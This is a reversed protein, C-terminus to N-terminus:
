YGPTTSTAPTNVIVKGIMDPHVKCHYTYTGAATFTYNFTAGSGIIGSDFLGADSTITHDIMDLNIWTIATNTIATVPSPNFAMYQIFVENLGPHVSGTTDIGMGSINNNSPKNCSGSIILAAFLVATLPLFFNRSGTLKIMFM